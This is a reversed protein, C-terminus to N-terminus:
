TTNRNEENRSKEYLGKNLIHSKEENHLEYTNQLGCSLAELSRKIQVRSVVQMVLTKTWEQLQYSWSLRKYYTSHEAIARVLYYACRGNSALAGLKPDAFIADAVTKSTEGDVLNLSGSFNNLIMGVDDSKWPKMRFVYAGDSSSVANGTLGTGAVVVAVNTAVEKAADCLASLMADNEFWWKCQAVGAEDIILCVHM